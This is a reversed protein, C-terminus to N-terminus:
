FCMGHGLDGQRDFILEAQHVMFAPDRIVIEVKVLFECVDITDKSRIKDDYVAKNCGVVTM